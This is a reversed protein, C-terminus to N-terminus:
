GDEAADKPKKSINKGMKKTIEDLIEQIDFDVESVTDFVDKTIQALISKELFRKLIVIIMYDEMPTTDKEQLIEYIRMSKKMCKEIDIKM